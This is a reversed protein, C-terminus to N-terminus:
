GFVSQLQRHGDSERRERWSLTANDRVATGELVTIKGGWHGGGSLWTSLHTPKPAANAKKVTEVETGCRSKSAGNSSDGSYSAQWYYTGPSLTEPNSAPVVGAKVSPTGASTVVKTCKSDSYVKYEVTGTASAANTGSLSAKDTVATGESVTIAAGSQGAGSLLTSTTTPEIRGAELTKFSEDLGKSTGGPNTASIRFHYTTNAALGGISALVAVPSMGKGPLASCSATKGYSSTEGYEFECKGVEGGNPNVTASLTASTQTVSSAAKTVVTPANGLLTKTTEDSGKSTGSPNTATIRFHYITNASLGSIAATVEVPSSGNGPLFSCSATKGYSTTEGYEFECKGVEGGNPNVTASLTASTQTVSSAAKTVVTPANGLLTKTTEDSGKSTGSPNTATIRFHYITNASLGSIAATVEVPSSGNGPLFSCSATKGYSTTEGYEFECKGVEGGNPNVTASLTASTQTVSSAAKTVVTPANGLLTKTTEDSGKSTGSPNTATIRFHYITNASLGSIAATVEM